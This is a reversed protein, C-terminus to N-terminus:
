NWSIVGNYWSIAAIRGLYVGIMVLVIMVIFNTMGLNLSEESLKMTEVTFSSMTTFSGLFGIGGFTIWSSDIVGLNFLTVIAGLAFSGLVNVALTGFPLPKLEKLMGTLYYRSLAGLMGGIAILMPPPINKLM